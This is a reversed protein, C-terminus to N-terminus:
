KGLSALAKIGSSFGLDLVWMIVAMLAVFSIVALSYNILEKKTPWSLHKVEGAVEKFYNGIAKGAKVFWRGIRVFINTKETKEKKM